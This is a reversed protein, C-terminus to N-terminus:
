REWAAEWDLDLDMALLELALEAQAGCDAPACGGLERWVSQAASLLRDATSQELGLPRWELRCGDVEAALVREGAVTLWGAIM